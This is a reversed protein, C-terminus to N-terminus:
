KKGRLRKSDCDKCSPSLGDKRSKDCSFYVLFLLRKCNFCRKLANLGNSILQARHAVPNIM